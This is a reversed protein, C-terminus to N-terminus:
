ARLQRYLEFLFTVRGSDNNFSTIGASHAYAAEVANDLKIHAESLVPPMNFPDYLTALSSHPFQARADLVERAATEIEATQKETPKPWPFNNYVINKSYRYDNKLRGCVYRTWARHMASMLVGFHYMTGGPIIHCSNAAVYASTFVGMPIYKRTESSTSPILIYDKKEPQSIQAFLHPVDALFPRASKLRIEKVKKVRQYVHKMKKLDDQELGVLWLCYREINNLFEYASIFRRFFKEAEPEEELFKEKEEKSFLLEGGDAPMNGFRMEPAGCIPRTRNMFFINEGDVLYSNINKVLTEVPKNTVTEYQYIKKVNREALAFGIIVCYVAAKNQAENNWKFTQHAFNIKVNFKNILEPWLIPVQL